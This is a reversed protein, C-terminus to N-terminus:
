YNTHADALAVKRRGAVPTVHAAVARLHRALAMNVATLAGFALALLLMAADRTLPNWGIGSQSNTFAVTTLWTASDIQSHTGAGALAAGHGLSVCGVVVVFLGIGMAFDIAVRVASPFTQRNTM